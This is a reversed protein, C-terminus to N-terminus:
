DEWVMPDDNKEWIFRQRARQSTITLNSESSFDLKKGLFWKANDGAMQIAKTLCVLLGHNDHGSSGPRILVIGPNRNPPFQRNDLFDPDHTILIRNDKWAFALVDEDSRGELNEDGVYKTNYGSAQLIEAVTKGMSEDVLSRAKGRYEADFVRREEDTPLKLKVWPM